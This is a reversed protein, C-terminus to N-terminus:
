EVTGFVAIFYYGTPAPAVGVGLQGLSESLLMRRHWDDPPAEDLWWNVADLPLASWAWSEDIAGQYGARQARTAADSGDSGTHSCSGRQSCDQAHAQAALALTENYALQYLGHREREANIHSWVQQALDAGGAPAPVVDSPAQDDEKGGDCATMIFVLVVFLIASTFFKRTQM